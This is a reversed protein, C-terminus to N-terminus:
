PQSPMGELYEDATSPQAQQTYTPILLFFPLSNVKAMKGKKKDAKVLM